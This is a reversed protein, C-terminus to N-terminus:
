QGLSVRLAGTYRWNRPPGAISRGVRRHMEFKMHDHCTSHPSGESPPAPTASAKSTEFVRNPYWSIRVARCRGSAQHCDDQQGRKVSYRARILPGRVPVKPAFNRQDAPERSWPRDPRSRSKILTLENVFRRQARTGRPGIPPFRGASWRCRRGRSSCQSPRPRLSPPGSPRRRRAIRCRRCLAPSSYKVARVYSKCM